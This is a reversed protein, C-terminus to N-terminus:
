QPVLVFTSSNQVHNGNFGLSPQSPIYNRMQSDDMHARKEPQYLSRRLRNAGSADRVAQEVARAISAAITNREQIM